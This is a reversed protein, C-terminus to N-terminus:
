ATRIQLTTKEEGETAMILWWSGRRDQFLIRNNFDKDLWGQTYSKKVWQQIVELPYVQDLEMYYRSGNERSKKWSPGHYRAFTKKGLVAKVTRVTGDSAEKLVPIPHKANEGRGYRDAFAEMKIEARREEDLLAKRIREELVAEQKIADVHESSVVGSYLMTELQSGDVEGRIEVHGPEAMFVAMGRYKMKTTHNQGLHMLVEKPTAVWVSAPAEALGVFGVAQVGSRLMWNLIITTILNKIEKTM